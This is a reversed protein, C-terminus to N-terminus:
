LHFINPGSIRNTLDFIKTNKISFNKLFEISYNKFQKHNLAFIIISYKDGKPISKLTILDFEELLSQSDVQPDVITIPLEIKKMKEILSIIQSNRTDSCNSKYSIGLLLIKTDQYPKNLKDIQTLIQEFLYEYMYDNIGRGASILRTNFGVLEAKYTLYYPDIGICHGGVLGPQYKHFNWKSGAAKLVENTDINIEKFLMSLENVLAINIDRQTNEIIKAAEAIKISSAKFTGAEIFSGYFKDVWTAIKKNCGSTVKTTSNITHKKDGPNIREPSYGCYFSDDYERSNFKIGSNLELLPVCIEETVGPYVTSEYIIIKNFKRNITDRISQGVIKSAEKLFYLDPKKNEDIPTPVTIIFIDIKRLLRQNNTFKINKVENLKKRSFIKNRDLGKNLENIRLQNIDFGIVKRKCKNKSLLCSNQNAIKIALPLGVYGLGIVAVSCEYLPPLNM